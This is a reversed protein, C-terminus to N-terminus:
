FPIMTQQGSRVSSSRLVSGAMPGDNKALVLEMRVSRSDHIRAKSSDTPYLGTVSFVASGERHTVGEPMEDMSLDQVTIDAQVRLCEVGEIKEVNELTVTGDLAQPQLMVGNARMARAFTQAHVGWSDGIEQFETTGFILDDDPMDGTYTSVVMQLAAKAMGPLRGHEMSFDTRGAVTEAIIVAGTPLAETMENGTGYVFYEIGLSKKLPRGRDDIELIQVLAQLEAKVSLDDRRLVEEGRTITTSNVLTGTASMRFRDGEKLPRDLRIEYRGTDALLPGAALLLFLASCSRVRFVRVEERRDAGAIRRRRSVVNREKGPLCL